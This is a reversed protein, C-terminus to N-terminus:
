KKIVKFIHGNVNVLYLGNQINHFDIYSETLREQLVINGAVSYVTVLVGHNGSIFLKEGEWIYSKKENAFDIQNASPTCIYIRKVSSIPVYATSGSKKTVMVNGDQFSIKQLSPVGWTQVEGTNPQIYLHNDEAQTFMPFIALTTLLLFTKKM